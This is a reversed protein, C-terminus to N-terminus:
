LAYGAKMADDRFMRVTERSLESLDKGIMYLKQLVESTVTIIHCGTEDAQFINLLERCSAWLLEINPYREIIERAASMIPMPDVGTDAIRGAFVSIVAAPGAGVATAIREVQDLTLVATINLRVGSCALEHVLPAACKGESNTVPIKVYVNEGWRSIKCAQRRMDAFDDSFVELSIPRNPIAELIARAFAEYDTVGAKRMLTPNTTFGKILPNKYLRLMGEKNAGDAFIKVRLDEVARTQM